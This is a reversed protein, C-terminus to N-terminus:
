KNHATEGNKRKCSVHFGGSALLQSGLILESTLRVDDNESIIAELHEGLIEARSYGTLKLFSENAYIISQNAGEHDLFVMPMRTRETAEVFPGGDERFKELARVSAGQSPPAAAGDRRM